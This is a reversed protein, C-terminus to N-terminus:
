IDFLCLLRPELGHPGDKWLMYMTAVTPVTGELAQDPKIDSWLQVIWVIM